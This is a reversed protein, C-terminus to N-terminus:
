CKSWFLSVNVGQGFLQSRWSRSGCGPASAQFTNFLLFSLALFSQRKTMNSLLVAFSQFKPVNSDGFCFAGNPGGRRHRLNPLLHPAIDSLQFGGQCKNKRSIKGQLLSQSLLTNFDLCKQKAMELADFWLANVEGTNTVKLTMKLSAELTWHGDVSDVM